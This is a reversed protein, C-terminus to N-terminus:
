AGDVLEVWGIETCKARWKTPKMERRSLYARGIHFAKSACIDGAGKISDRNKISSVLSYRRRVSDFLFGKKLTVIREHAESNLLTVNHFYLSCRIRAFFPRPV